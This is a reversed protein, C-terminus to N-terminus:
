KGPLLSSLADTLREAFSATLSWPSPQRLVHIKGRKELVKYSSTGNAKRYFRISLVAGGVHLNKLTIEPLWEPLHPDLLLINLPAYPYLGLLAQLMFFVASSSWAQPSNAQPYLAPFPHERDRQHGSFLEPLRYFEFLVAAEFMARSLRELHDHLGYRLFALTFSANEVPWVSGRHYSYPNYAPNESSLTRIGWGTFMDPALLRDATQQVLSEDVIATALCHGANSGIAKIQRKRSDLGMAIYSEDAMWFAENFRKKMEGAQDYLKRALEKEDMWWLVESMHLKALYAFAQEECTAIPPTVQSGDEYVMADGSDKWGQNAVGQESRTQYEYFGDRDIDAYEDLWRIADLAPGIFPRVLEKDGTWHWLESLVVPYFGSTTVSGYYRMRPNYNLLALPGTHAEHLMRGPQEDRWDNIERGQWRAMEALTGRMIAPTLISSQLAVTLTDRGFLAVYIPLGAAVTWAREHHDLDYLRLSALDDKAQELAGIVVPALTETEPTTFVTSESFFIRRRREYEYKGELTSRCLYDPSMLEGDIFAIMSICAHWTQHPDLRVDFGILGDKYDPQSGANEIRVIVGRHIEAAGRYGQHDFAHSSRYDIALDWAGNTGSRWERTIEGKQQRDGPTESLDAFDSDIEIEFRFASPRQTFNTLDVDEHMGDSIHRSAKLELTQQSAETIMGSGHDKDRVEMGPLLRIYYGLWRHQEVNSLADPLPPDGDILYRYRSILRTQHVFLGQDPGGLIFGDRGTALVTRNQSCYTTGERM